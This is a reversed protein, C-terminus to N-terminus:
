PGHDQQLATWQPPNFSEERCTASTIFKLADDKYLISMLETSRRATM